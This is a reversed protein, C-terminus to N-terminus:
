QLSDLTLWGRGAFYLRGGSALLASVDLRRWTQRHQLRPNGPYSATRGRARHYRHPKM